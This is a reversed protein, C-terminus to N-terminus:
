LPRFGYVRGLHLVDDVQLLGSSCSEDFLSAAAASVGLELCTETPYGEHLGLLVGAAFADGAGASGRIREPPLQIAPQICVGTSKGYALAGEPFHLIVLRSVGMDFAKRAAAEARGLEVGDPGTCDIGTIKLAEYENIFLYDIYPLSPPVLSSFRNSAESVIDTSTIFGLSRAKEFVRSAVTRGDERIADMRDLLLLYAMHFIRAKSRSLDLHEPGFKANAGRQHFFTRRGTGAVSMVATYSTATDDTVLLQATDIGCSRCDELIRKGNEDRGVLGSAELPFPAKLYSLDKLVNYPSGGNNSKEALINALGDQHPFEDIVKIEDIIWNGAALIGKRM